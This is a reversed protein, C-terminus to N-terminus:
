AGSNSSATHCDTKLSAGTASRVRNSAMLDVVIISSRCDSGGPVCNPRARLDVLEKLVRPSTKLLGPVLKVSAPAHRSIVTHRAWYNTIIAQVRQCVVLDM